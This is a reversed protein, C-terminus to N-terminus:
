ETKKAPSPSLIAVTRREPRLYKRAAERIEEATISQIMEPYALLNEWGGHFLEYIAMVEALGTDSALTYLFSARARNHIKALEEESVLEDQLREIEEYIAAELEEATHPHRPEAYLVFLSPYRSGPFETSGSVSLAMQEEVVLRKYLRSSRGSTLLAKIEDLVYIDRAPYAPQRWGILLRPEASYEVRIRREEEQEPEEPIWSPPRERPELVGFYREVLERTREPDIDGVMVLVARNPRYHTEWFERATQTRYNAIEEMSGILPRGYPHKQFAAALFLEFLYGDPQDEKRQRREEKIVDVEEYFFRFVADLLVDAQIRIWAELRNAPLSVVYSTHDYSTYANYDVAGQANMLEFLLRPQVVGQAEQRARLFEAHRRDIEEQPAGSQLAAFYADAAEEVQALLKQERFPDLSGLISTGKFAMHEVMHAIGGLGPPEDIGGVDFMLHCHVVPAWPRKVMIVRLGNDLEFQYTQEALGSGATVPLCALLVIPIFFLLTKKRLVLLEEKRVRARWLLARRKPIPSKSIAKNDM